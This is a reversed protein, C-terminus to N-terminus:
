GDGFLKRGFYGGFKKSNTSKTRWSVFKASGNLSLFAPHALM